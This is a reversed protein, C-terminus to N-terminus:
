VSVNAVANTYHYKPETDSSTMSMLRQINSICYLDIVDFHSYKMICVGNWNWGLWRGLGGCKLIDYYFKMMLDDLVLFVGLTTVVGRM